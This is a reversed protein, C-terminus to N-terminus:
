GAWPPTVLGPEPQVQLQVESFRESLATWTEGSLHHDGV